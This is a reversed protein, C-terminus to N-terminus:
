GASCFRHWRRVSWSCISRTRPRASRRESVSAGIVDPEGVPERRYIGACALILGCVALATLLEANMRQTYLQGDVVDNYSVVLLVVSLAVQAAM